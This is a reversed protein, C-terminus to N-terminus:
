DGTALIGAARLKALLANFDVVLEAATTAESDAQLAATKANVATSIATAIDGGAELEAAIGAAVSASIAATIDGSAELEATLTRIITAAIAGTIAGTPGLAATVAAAGDSVVLGDLNGIAEAVSGSPTAAGSLTDLAKVVSNDM